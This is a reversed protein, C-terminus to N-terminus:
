PTRGNISQDPATEGRPKLLRIAALLAVTAIGAAIRLTGDIPLYTIPLSLAGLLLLLARLVFNLRRAWFGIIAATVAAIGIATQVTALATDGWSGTLLLAPTAVFAFPLIFAAWGTRMSALGTELAGAKSITAAAFAALAVPPTIMSMMGFYLIFLHAAIQNIGAEVLSPAVLAALLVYVGSTPMGMGLIICIIASVLLLLVINSGVADVLVLTLAFGLGTVNLVGIVFGAAAVILILDVMSTGTGVFVDRLKPLTLREGRYPRLFGVAVIAVSAMLASDEPDYRFWFLAALLVAFPIAFHWGEKLVQRTTLTDDEHASINDRGAILDVQLFVGFYYLIAPILAAGAVTVYPIELFEAMLFAAAGMIPPTLQGGTSAVAEVAGADRASYGGRRMLPITFVGTTVVNSVASGSISGFLASGVVSIKASGGRTGGTAAMALDTFFAGGGAAFLLQGFFVFLLVIITGVALPSSFVASPDFGVYQVLRVPSLEKGILRGPVKDAFLAYILFVAVIAFLMWGARRRIGEMVTITVVTGIVTIQWPRYFQEQLLWNFDWATYMLTVFAIGAVIGDIWGVRPKEQGRWDYRLFAITIALGLQLAMYQQTLIAVGMRTPAEVNWLICAVCMVTAMIAVLM